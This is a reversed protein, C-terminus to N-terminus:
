SVISSIRSPSSGSVPRRIPPSLPPRRWWRLISVYLAMAILGASVGFMERGAVFLLWSMGIAFVLAAMHILFMLTGVEYKGGYSPTNHFLLLHGGDYAETKFYNGQLPATKLDLPLLPLTAILKV